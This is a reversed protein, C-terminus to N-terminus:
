AIDEGRFITHHLAWTRLDAVSAGGTRTVEALLIRRLPGLHPRVSIDVAAAEPDAPDRLRIGAYEDLAWLEDKFKELAKDTAAGFTLSEVAGARDVLDVRCSVAFPSVSSDRVAAGSEPFASDGFASERFGSGSSSERFASGSPSEPFASGSPSERFA